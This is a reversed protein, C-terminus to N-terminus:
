QAQVLRQQAASGSKSTLFSRCHLGLLLSLPLSHSLRRCGCSWREARGIGKQLFPPLFPPLHLGLGPLAAPPEERGASPCNAQPAGLVAVERQWIIFVFPSIRPIRLGNQPWESRNQHSAQSGSKGVCVQGFCGGKGGTRAEGAGKVAEKQLAIQWFVSAGQYALSYVGFSPLPDDNKFM